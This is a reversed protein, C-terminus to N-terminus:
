RLNGLVKHSTNQLEDDKLRCTKTSLFMLSKLTPSQVLLTVKDTSLLTIGLTPFTQYGVNELFIIVLMMMIDYSCSGVWEDDAFTAV